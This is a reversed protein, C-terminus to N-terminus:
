ASAPGTPSGAVDADDLSAAQPFLIKQAPACAEVLSEYDAIELEGLLGIEESPVPANPLYPIEWATVLIAILGETLDYGAAILKEHDAINTMARKKDKARLTKPDRLQAWGGSPLDIRDSL